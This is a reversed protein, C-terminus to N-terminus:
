YASSGGGWILSLDFTGGGWILSTDYANMGWILSLDSLYRAYGWVLTAPDLTFFAEAILGNQWVVGSAYLDDRFLCGSALRTGEDWTVYAWTGDKAFVVHSDSFTGDYWTVGTGWAAGRAGWGWILTQAYAAQQLELIATGTLWGRQWIVGKSWAFTQGAITTAPVPMYLITLKAGLPLTDARRSLARATRVAGEVNLMGSGQEFLNAGEMMQASYMLIAKVMNPTLSPNGQLMLAVTGAVVPTAMSTGSLVMYNGKNDTRGTYVHLEPFHQVIQNQYRELSVLRVGPAVLDPKALNDYVLAGTVPDVSRSRTPGRSSYRAVEDDSRSDTGFTNTAGVTIAAPSIGPSTIGGYVKYGYPDLGFNGAAAVVVIGATTAREVARCLPDDRYSEVPPAALSLNIVRINYLAKNAIAYDIAAIVSSVYGRGYEDLVRLNLLSAGPAIGAFDRSLLLSSTGNGAIIGAVHSGHGYPDDSSGRGVFDVSVLVRKKGSYSLDFLDPDIGSDVVAVGVGTGDVDLSTWSSLLTGSLPYVQSAGTTVQLHSTLGNVPRDPAIYELSSSESLAAVAGIPLEVVMQGVFRYHGRVRGGLEVITRELDSAESGNVRLILRVREAPSKGRAAEALDPAVRAHGHREGEDGPGLNSGPGSSSGGSNSSGSGSGGAYTAVPSAGLILVLLIILCTRSSIIIRDSLKTAGHHAKFVSGTVARM